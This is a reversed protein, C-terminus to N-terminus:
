PRHGAGLPRRSSRVWPISGIDPSYGCSAFLTAWATTFLTAWFWIGFPLDGPAASLWFSSLIFLLTLYFPVRLRPGVPLSSRGLRLSMGLLFMVYWSLVVLMVTGCLDCFFGVGLRCINPNRSMWGILWRSKLLSLYDPILSLMLTLSLYLDAMRGVRPIELAALVENPRSVAWYLTVVLVASASALCSRRFCRWSLLREGFLHDFVQVFSSLWGAAIRAPDVTKLWRTVHLKLAPSAVSEAREFLLGIGGLFALLGLVTM